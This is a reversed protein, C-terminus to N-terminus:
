SQDHGPPAPRPPCRSSLSIASSLMTRYLGHVLTGTGTGPSPLAAPSGCSPARQGYQAIVLAAPPISGIPDPNAARFYYKRTNAVPPHVVVSLAQVLFITSCPIYQFVAPISPIHVVTNGFDSGFHSGIDALYVM